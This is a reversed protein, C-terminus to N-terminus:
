QVNRLRIQENLLVTQTKTGVTEVAVMTIALVNGSNLAYAVSQIYKSLVKPEGVTPAIRKRYLNTGSLYFSVTEGNFRNDYTGDVNQLPYVVALSGGSISVSKAERLAQVIKQMAITADTNAYAHSSGRAWSRLSAFMLAVVTMIVMTGITTATMVELM